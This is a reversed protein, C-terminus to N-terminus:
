SRMMKNYMIEIMEQMEDSITTGLIAKCQYCSIVKVPYGEIDKNEASFTIYNGCHPCKEM